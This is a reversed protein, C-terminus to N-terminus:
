KRARQPAGPLLGNLLLDVSTEIYRETDLPWREAFLLRCVHMALAPSMLLEPYEIVAAARITGIKAARQLREKLKELIPDFVTEFHEDVLAPFRTAESILLRLLEQERQDGTCARFLFDLDARISDITPDGREEFFPAMRERAVKGRERVLAEFVREKSEFYVYITGKTVGARTAVDELRTAAYGHLAFEEFAAELIENPREAKRRARTAGALAMRGLAVKNNM